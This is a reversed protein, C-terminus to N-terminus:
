RDNPSVASERLAPRRIPLGQTGAELCRRIRGELGAGPKGKELMEKGHSWGFNFGSERDELEALKESPLAALKSALPLLRARAAPFGPVDSVALIGLGDPGYAHSILASLDAKPDTLQTYSVCLLEMPPGTMAPVPELGKHSFSAPVRAAPRCCSVRHNRFVSFAERETKLPLRRRLVVCASNLFLAASLLCGCVAPPRISSGQQCGHPNPAGTAAAAAATCYTTQQYSRLTRSSRLGLLRDDESACASTASSRRIRGPQVCRKGGGTM